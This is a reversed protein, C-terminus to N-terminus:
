ATPLEMRIHRIPTVPQLGHISIASSRYKAAKAISTHSGPANRGPHRRQYELQLRGARQRGTGGLRQDSRPIMCIWSPTEASLHAIAMSCWAATATVAARLMYVLKGTSLELGAPMARGNPVVLRDGSAALYGQPSLGSEENFFEHDRRVHAIHNLEGM